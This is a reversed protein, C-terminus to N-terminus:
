ATPQSFLTSGAQKQMILLDIFRGKWWYAANCMRQQRKTIPLNTLICSIGHKQSDFLYKLFFLWFKTYVVIKFYM